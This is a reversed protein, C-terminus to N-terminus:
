LRLRATERLTSLVRPNIPLAQISQRVAEIRMLDNAIAGTITFNPSYVAPKRSAVLVEAALRFGVM